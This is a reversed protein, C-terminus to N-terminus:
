RLFVGSLFRVLGLAALWTGFYPYDNGSLLIFILAYISAFAVYFLFAGDVVRRSITTSSLLRMAFVMMPMEYPLILLVFIAITTVFDAVLIPIQRSGTQLSSFSFVLVLGLIGSIAIHRKM